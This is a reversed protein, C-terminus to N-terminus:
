SQDRRRWYGLRRHRHAVALVVVTNKETQRYYLFYPFRKLRVWHYNRQFRIGKEPAEAIRLIARDVEDTFAIAIQEGAKNAYRRRAWLYERSAVEDFVVSTPM